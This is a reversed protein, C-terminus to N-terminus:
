KDLLTIDIHSSVVIKKNQLKAETLIVQLKVVEKRLEFIRKQSIEDQKGYRENSSWNKINHFNIISNFFSILIEKAEDESFFCETLKLNQCNKM